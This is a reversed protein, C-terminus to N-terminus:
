PKPVHFRSLFQGRKGSMLIPSDARVRWIPPRESGTGSITQYAHPIPVSPLEPGLLHGAFMTYETAGKQRVAALKEADGRLMGAQPIHLRSLPEIVEIVEIWFFKRAAPRNRWVVFM